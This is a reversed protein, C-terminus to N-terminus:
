PHGDQYFRNATDDPGLVPTLPLEGLIRPWALISMLASGGFINDTNGAFNAPNYNNVQAWYFRYRDERLLLYIDRLDRSEHAEYYIVPCYQQIIQKCGQLVQLEHGEADIKIFDPPDLGATDLDIATVPIGTIHDVINVAGFNSIQDPDYDSIYCTTKCNSVAYQGLFVNDFEETNKELLAYNGPHPEFAYVRKVRTAFATTHYGINAGVDYVVASDTLFSLIFDIECQSYEGYRALSAGIMLDNSHYWFEDCYRTKTSKIM